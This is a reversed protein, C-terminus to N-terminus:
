PRRAHDIAATLAAEFARTTERIDFRDCATSHGSNLPESAEHRELLRALLEAVAPADDPPAVFNGTRKLVAASAGKAPTLGLIPRRLMLYDVIKSPLFVNVDTKADILLLLDAGGALRLSDLYGVNGHFTVIRDLDMRDRLAVTEVPANGYFAVGLRGELRAGGGLLALAEFLCEPDRRGAYINGTYVLLLPGGSNVLAPAQPLLDRDFGHPVVHVKRRWASPYKAMVLDATQATVFVM